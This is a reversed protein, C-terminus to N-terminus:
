PSTSQLCLHTQSKERRSRRSHPFGVLPIPPNTSNDPFVRSIKISLTYVRENRTERNHYPRTPRETHFPFIYTPIHSHFSYNLYQRNRPAPTAQEMRYTCIVKRKKIFIPFYRLFESVPRTSYSVVCAAVDIVKVFSELRLIDGLIRVERFDFDHGHVHICIYIYVYVREQGPFSAFLVSRSVPLILSRRGCFPWLLKMTGNGVYGECGLSAWTKPM